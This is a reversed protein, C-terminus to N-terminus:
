PARLHPISRRWNAQMRAHLAVDQVHVPDNRRRLGLSRTAADVAVGDNGTSCGALTGILLASWLTGCLHAMKRMVRLYAFKAGVLIAAIPRRRHWRTSAGRASVARQKRTPSSRIADARSTRRRRARGNCTLSPRARGQRVTCTIWATMEDTSGANACCPPDAFTGAEIPHGMRRATSRSVDIARSIEKQRPNPPSDIAKQRAQVFVGSGASRPEVFGMVPASGSRPAV